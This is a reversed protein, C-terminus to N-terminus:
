KKVGYETCVTAECLGSGLKEIIELMHRVSTNVESKKDGKKLATSLLKM